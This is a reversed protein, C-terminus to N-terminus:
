VSLCIWQSGGKVQYAHLTMRLEDRVRLLLLGRETCNITSQRILEDFCQAYLERRTKFIVCIVRSIYWRKERGSMDRDRKSTEAAAEPGATGALEDCGAQSM